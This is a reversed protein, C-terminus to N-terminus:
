FFDCFTNGCSKFTNLLVCSADLKKPIDLVTLLNDYANVNGCCFLAPRRMCGYILGNVATIFLM